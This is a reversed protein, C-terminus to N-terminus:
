AALGHREQFRTVAGETLPGFLGDVPGPREGLRRLRHQLVRVADSGGARDYGSGSALRGASALQDREAAHGIAPASLLVFTAALAAIALLPRLTRQCAM